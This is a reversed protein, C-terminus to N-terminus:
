TYCSCQIENRQHNIQIPIDLYAPDSRRKMEDRVKRKYFIRLAQFGLGMVEFFISTSKLIQEAVELQFGLRSRMLNHPKEQRCAPSHILFCRSSNNHKM